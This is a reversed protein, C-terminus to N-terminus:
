EVLIAYVFACQDLMGKMDCLRGQFIHFSMVQEDCSIEM